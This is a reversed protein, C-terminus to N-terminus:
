HIVISIQEQISIRSIAGPAACFPPTEKILQELKVDFTRLQFKADIAVHRLLIGEHVRYHQRLLIFQIIAGLFTKPPLPPPPPPMTTDVTIANM